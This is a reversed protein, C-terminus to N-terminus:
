GIIFGDFKGLDFMIGVECFCDLVCKKNDVCEIGDLRDEISVIM